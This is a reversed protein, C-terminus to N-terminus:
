KWMVNVNAKAAAALLKILPMAWHAMSVEPEEDDKDEDKNKL